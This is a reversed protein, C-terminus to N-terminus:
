TKELMRKLKDVHHYIQGPWNRYSLGFFVVPKELKDWLEFPLEFRSGTRANYDRGNFTVAGGVILGDSGNLKDPFVQDFDVKCFTYDDWPERCWNVSRGLDEELTSELGNALAGNGINTSGFNALHLLTLTSNNSKDM